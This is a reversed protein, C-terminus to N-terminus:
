QPCHEGCTSTTPKTVRKGPWLILCASIVSLPIAISLHSIVLRQHRLTGSRAGGQVDTLEFSENPLHDNGVKFSAWGFPYSTLMEPDSYWVRSIALAGHVSKLSYAAGQFPVAISEWYVQSRFWVATFACAMALTVCGVKRQWGKFFERM